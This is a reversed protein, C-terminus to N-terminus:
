RRGARWRPPPARAPGRSRRPPRRPRSTGRARRVPYETSSRNRWSVQEVRHLRRDGLEDRRRRPQPRAPPRPAAARGGASLEATTIWPPPDEADSGLGVQRGVALEVLGASRRPPPGARRSRNSPPSSTGNPEVQQERCRRARGPAARRSRRPCTPAPAASRRRRARRRWRAKRVDGARGDGDGPGLVALSSAREPDVASGRPTGRRRPPAPPTSCRGRTPRGSSPRRPRRAAPPSTFAEGVAGRRVFPRRRGRGSGGPAAAGPCRRRCGACRDPGIGEVHSWPDLEGEVRRGTVDAEAAPHVPEREDRVVRLPERLVAVLGVVDLHGPELLSQRAIPLGFTTM